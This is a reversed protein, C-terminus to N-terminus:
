SRWTAPQERYAEWLAKGTTNSLATPLSLTSFAARIMESRGQPVERGELTLAMAALDPLSKARLARAASATQDGYVKGALEDRGARCLLAAELTKQDSIGMGGGSAVYNVPANARLNTKLVALETEIPSWGAEIAKAGILPHRVTLANIEAIRRHDASHAARLNVMAAATAPAGVPVPDGPAPAQMTDFQQQMLARGEDTLVALDDSKALMAVLDRNAVQDIDTFVCQGIAAAQAQAIEAATQKHIHLGNLPLWRRFTDCLGAAHAIAQPMWAFKGAVIRLGQIQHTRAWASLTEADIDYGGGDHLLAAVTETSEPYHPHVDARNWVPALRQVCEADDGLAASVGIQPITATM